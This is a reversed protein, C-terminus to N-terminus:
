LDRAIKGLTAISRDLMDSWPYGCSVRICSTFRQKASFIPGPAVSIGAALGRAHLELASKGAPLEIWRVFGGSPRSIRTGPPFREAIAGSMRTVQDALNRRLRRLHREYGGNALFDAVAMPPLTPTAITQSFKLREVQERFRGPAV